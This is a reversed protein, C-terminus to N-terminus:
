KTFFFREIGLWDNIPLESRIPLNNSLMYSTTTLSLCCSALSLVSQASSRVKIALSLVKAPQIRVPIAQMPTARASCAINPSKSGVQTGLSAALRNRNAETKMKQDAQLAATFVLRRILSCSASPRGQPRILTSAMSIIVPANAVPAM